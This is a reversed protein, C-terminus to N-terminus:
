NIWRDRISITSYVSKKSHCFIALTVLGMHSVSSYAILRKMDNQRCTTLGGYIIAILSIIILLPSFYESM